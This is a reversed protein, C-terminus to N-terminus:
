LCVFLDEKTSLNDNNKAACYWLYPLNLGASLQTSLGGTFRPNCELFYPLGEPSVIFDLGAVGQFDIAQLLTGAIQALEPFEVTERQVSPGLGQDRSLPRYCAYEFRDKWRFVDISYDQGPIFQQILYSKKRAASCSEHLVLQELAQRDSPKRVGTGGFSCDRKFIVPYSDVADISDYVTPVPLGLRLALSHSAVKSNLLGINSPTDVPIAINEILRYPFYSYIRSVPGSLLSQKLRSLVTADGVPLIVSPSFDQELTKRLERLYGSEDRVTNQAFPMCRVMLGHSELSHCAIQAIDGMSGALLVDIREM